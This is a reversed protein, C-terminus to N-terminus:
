HEYCHILGYFDGEKVETECPLWRVYYSRFMNVAFANSGDCFGFGKYHEDFDFMSLLSQMLMPKFMSSYIMRYTLTPVIGESVYNAILKVDISVVINVNTSVNNNIYYKYCM